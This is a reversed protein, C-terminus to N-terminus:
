GLCIDFSDEILYSHALMGCVDLMWFVPSISMTIDVFRDLQPLRLTDTEDGEVVTFPMRTADDTERRSEFIPEDRALQM